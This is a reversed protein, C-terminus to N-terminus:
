FRIIGGIRIIRPKDYNSPVNVKTEYMDRFAEESTQSAISNQVAPATLYGDDDPEGTYRYVTFINKRNFLNQMWLYINMQLRNSFLSFGKEIKLNIFRFDPIQEANLTGLLIPTSTSSITAESTVNSQRSYPTGGRSHCFVSLGLNQLPKKGKPTIFGLYDKGSGFNFQLYGSLIYDAFDDSPSQSFQKTYYLGANLGSSRRSNYIVSTTIGKNIITTHGYTTYSVPYAYYINEITIVNDLIYDFYSIEGILGKYFHQKIGLHIKDARMPKLAPNNIVPYLNSYIFFYQEPKFINLTQPNQTHSNYNFFLNTTKFLKVNLSFSPLINIVPEYDKFASSSIENAEPDVLYPAIGTATNLIAPDAIQIGQADYWADGNRYGIVNSASPNDIDSVYAIYDDGINAPYNLGSIDGASVAEYLLYKDKLVPQNADYRDVRLGVRLYVWKVSYEYQSYGAAYIPQFAPVPRTYNGNGDKYNFFDELSHKAKQKNGLYDYGSYSVYSNGNNLLEDASFMDLSFMDPNYSDLDIWDTGDVPLGLKQRLNKDFFTQSGEDYLRDYYITDGFIADGPVIDDKTLILRGQSNYYVLYPNALDLQLIHRNTLSRMSNWLGVPSIQYYKENKKSYEGGFKFHHNKYDVNFMLNARLKDENNESYRDFQHGSNNWLNYVDRPNWGNILGGGDIVQMWNKYHDEAEDFLEYYRRTYNSTVPNIDSAEFSYLTDRFGNHIRGMLGTVSDIGYGYSNIKSTTFKGIYGYNFFNEKHNTDQLKKYYNSYNFQLQYNANLDKSRKIFHTIRFYNDFNRTIREPNNNFNFLANEYIYERRNDLKLYSGLTLEINEHVPFNFKGFVNLAKNGAHQYFQTETFQDKTITESNLTTGYGSYLPDLPNNELESLTSSNVEYSKAWSPNLDNTSFLNAAIYFSPAPIKKTKSRKGIRIPGSANVELIHNDLSHFPSSSLMEVNVSLTDSPEPTLIVIYGGTSNGLQIPAESNLVAFKGISRFPFASADKIQMGDLVIHNAGAQIGYFYQTNDNLYYATPTLLSLEKIDRFPLHRIKNQDIFYEDLRSEYGTISYQLTDYEWTASDPNTEEQGFLLMSLAGFFLTIISRKM